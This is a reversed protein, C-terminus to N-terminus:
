RPRTVAVTPRLGPRAMVIEISAQADASDTAYEVQYQQSLWDCDKTVIDGLAKMREVLSNPVSLKDLHGGSNEALTMVADSQMGVGRGALVIGHMLVGRAQLADALQRFQTPNMNSNEPGDTTVMVITAFRDPVSKFFRTFTESLSNLLVSPSSSDVYIIGVADHLKKRDTTPPVRIRLQRGTTLLLMEVNAPVADIFAHIGTRLPALAPASADSNDVMLALRVPQHAAARTVSRSKGNENVQFDAPTLDLVPVNAADVVSVFLQRTRPQQASATLAVCVVLTALLLRKM